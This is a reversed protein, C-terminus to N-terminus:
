RVCHAETFEVRTDDENQLNLLWRKGRGVVPTALVHHGRREKLTYLTKQMDEVVFCPHSFNPDDSPFHEINEVCDPLQLYNMMVPQSRDEPYRWLEHCGLIGVYFPDDDTVRTCYLGAHHIRESIRREPLFKGHSLQHLSAPNWQMFELTIGYPDQVQILTNGAGDSCTSDPVTVGKTKLFQRMQEVNDTEFSVAVLRNKNRAEQDEIFELFQRDNVKFVVVSGRNSPYSFAEEFGLFDGYYDRALQMDSVLYTMRAIGWIAPRSEQGSLNELPLAMILTVAFLTLYKKGCHNQM